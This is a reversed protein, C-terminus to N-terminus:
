ETDQKAVRAALIEAPTKDLRHHFVKPDIDGCGGTGRFFRVHKTEQHLAARLDDFFPDGTTKIQRGALQSVENEPKAVSDRRM